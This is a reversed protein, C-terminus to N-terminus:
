ALGTRRHSTVNLITSAIFLVAQVYWLPKYVLALPFWYFMVTALYLTIYPGLVQWRIPSRWEIKNVYEVVYGFVAWVLYLVGGLWLSWPKGGLGLLLSVLVAPLSLAYVLPGYRIATTFKWRRVAFHVILVIQFVFATVIFLLSLSDFTPM